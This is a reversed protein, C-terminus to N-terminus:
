AAATREIEAVSERYPKLSFALATTITAHCLAAVIVLSYRLKAPDHFVYDTILATATPGLGMGILNAIVTYLAVAKGRMRNPMLEQLSAVICGIGITGVLTAVTLLAIAIGGSPALLYGFGPVMWLISGLLPVRMKADKKGQRYWRDALAGGIVVSISATVAANIGLWFGAKGIPWGFSRVMFTPLWSGVGYGSFAVATFAIQHLLLARGHRRYHSVVEAFAPPRDATAGKRTPERVTAVLLALPLLGIVGVLIFAFQWPRVTGVLPLTVDGQGAAIGAIAGGIVTALGAGIYVGTAYVSMATALRDRPVSDAIVSPAAPSATAEGIGVAMRMLFLNGFSRGFGSAATAITWGLFGISILGVRHVRDVLIGFPIGMVANLSAFAFGLLLSMQTDNIGLDAKIPEVLLSLIGRDLFSFVIVLTMMAVV